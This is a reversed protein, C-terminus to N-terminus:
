TKESRGASASSGRAAIGMSGARHHVVIGQEIEFQGADLLEFASLHPLNKVEAIGEEEDRAVADGREIAHHGVADRAFALYERLDRVEPEVLGLLEHRVMAEHLRAFREVDGRERM